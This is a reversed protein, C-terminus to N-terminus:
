SATLAWGLLKVTCYIVQKLGRKIVRAAIMRRSLQREWGLTCLIERWDAIIPSFCHNMKRRRGSVQRVAHLDRYCYQCGQSWSFSGMNLSEQRSLQIKFWCWNFCTRPAVYKAVGVRGESQDAEVIGPRQNASTQSMCHGPPGLDGAPDCPESTRLERVKGVDRVDQCKCIM